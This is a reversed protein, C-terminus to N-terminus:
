KLNRQLFKGFRWGVIWKFPAEGLSYHGCPLRLSVCSVGNRRTAALFEDSLDVPFTPDYQGSIALLKQGIHRLKSIYPIPSIPEWFRRIEEVSVHAALSEWVNKTTLGRAVVDGFNTSVHLLAAARILREHSATVCSICSGLSTGLIGLPGYGRSDLWRLSCRADCVAQRNAQLTLGINPGVIYDARPHGPVARHDHYPLSLRLASIGLRNLWRCVDIYADSTANWQPLLIVAAGSTAAPFFRGYVRNNEEWPSCVASTFTLEGSWAARNPILEYHFDAPTEFAFWEDSNALTEEAFRALFDRPKNEDAKGGIHELGWAFPLVPRNPEAAWRRHEYRLIREAYWRTNTLPIM